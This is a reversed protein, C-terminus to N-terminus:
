EGETRHRGQYGSPWREYWHTDDSRHRGEYDNDHM